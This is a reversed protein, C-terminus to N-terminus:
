LSADQNGLCVQHEANWLLYTALLYDKSGGAAVKYANKAFMNKSRDHSQKMTHGKLLSTVVQNSAELFLGATKDSLPDSMKNPEAMFIFDEKYGIYGASGKKISEPGLKKGSRCSLAYVIKGALFDENDGAQVLVENDQGMVVGDNGHGNLFVLSPKRKKLISEVEKRNARKGDLDWVKMGKKKALELADKAWYFLYRVTSDHKPRTILLTKDM